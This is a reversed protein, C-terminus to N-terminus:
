WNHNKNSILNEIKMMARHILVSSGMLLNSCVYEGNCAVLNRTTFRYWSYYLYIDIMNAMPHKSSIMVILTHSQNLYVVVQSLIIKM